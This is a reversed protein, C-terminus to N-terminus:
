TELHQGVEFVMFTKVPNDQSPPVIRPVDLERMLVAHGDGVRGRRLVQQHQIQRLALRPVCRDRSICASPM